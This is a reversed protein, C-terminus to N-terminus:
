AHTLETGEKCTWTPSPKPRHQPEPVQRSFQSKKSPVDSPVRHPFRRTNGTKEGTNEASNKRPSKRSINRGHEKWIGARNRKTARQQARAFNEPKRALDRTSILACPAEAVTTWPQSAESAPKPRTRGVSQLPVSPRTDSRLRTLPSGLAEQRGRTATKASGSDVSISIAEKMSKWNDQIPCRRPNGLVTSAACVDSTHVWSTTVFPVCSSHSAPSQVGLAHVGGSSVRLNCPNPKRRQLPCIM